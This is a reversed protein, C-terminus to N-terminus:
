APDEDDFSPSAWELARQSVLGLWGAGMAWAIVMEGVLNEPIPPLLFLSGIPMVVVTSLAAGFATPLAVLAIPSRDRITALGAGICLTATVAVHGAIWALQWFRDPDTPLWGGKGDSAVLGCAIAIPWAPLAMVVGTGVLGWSRLASYGLMSQGPRRWRTWLSQALVVSPVVVVVLCVSWGLLLGIM